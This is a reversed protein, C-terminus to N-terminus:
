YSHSPDRTDTITNLAMDRRANKIRRDMPETTYLSYRRVFERVYDDSFALEKWRAFHAALDRVSIRESGLPDGRSFHFQLIAKSIYRHPWVAAGVIALGVGSIGFVTLIAFARPSIM